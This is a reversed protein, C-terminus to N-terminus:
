LGPSTRKRKQKRMERRRVARNRTKWQGQHDVQPIPKTNVHDPDILLAWVGWHTEGADSGDARVFVHKRWPIHYHKSCHTFALPYWAKTEWQPVILIAWARDKLIKQITRIIVSDEFPPNVWLM